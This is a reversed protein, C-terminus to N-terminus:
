QPLDHGRPLVFSGFANEEVYLPHNKKWKQWLIHTHPTYPQMDSRFQNAADAASKGM